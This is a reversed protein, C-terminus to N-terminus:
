RKKKPISVEIGAEKFLRVAFDLRDKVDGMAACGQAIDEPVQFSLKLRRVFEDNM